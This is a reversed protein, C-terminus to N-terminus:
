RNIVATFRQELQRIEHREPRRRARLVGDSSCTSVPKGPENVPDGFVQRYPFRLMELAFENADVSLGSNGGVNTAPVSAIRDRLRRM